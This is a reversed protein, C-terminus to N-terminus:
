ADGALAADVGHEHGSVDEVVVTAVGAEEVLRALTRYYLRQEEAGPNPHDFVDGAVLVADVRRERAIRVIQELAHREDDLRRQDHFRQGLHWDATHLLLM